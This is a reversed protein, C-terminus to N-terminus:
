TRKIPKLLYMCFHKLFIRALSVQLHIYGTHKYMRLASWLGTVSSFVIVNLGVKLKEVLFM